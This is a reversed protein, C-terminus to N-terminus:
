KVGAEDPCPDGCEPCKGSVNGTLNYGCSQCHGPPPLRWRIWRRSGVIWFIVTAVGAILVLHWIHVYCKQLGPSYGDISSARGGGTPGLIFVKDRLHTNAGRITNFFMGRRPEIPYPGIWQNSAAEQWDIAGMKRHDVAKYWTYLTIRGYRCEVAWRSGGYGFCYDSGDGAWLSALSTVFLLALGIWKLVRWVRSRRPMSM